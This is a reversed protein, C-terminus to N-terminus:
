GALGSDTGDVLYLEGVIPSVAEDRIVKPFQGCVLRLVRQNQGGGFITGSGSLTHNSLGRLLTGYVFVLHHEQM